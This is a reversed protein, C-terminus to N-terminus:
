KEERELVAVVRDIEDNTDDYKMQNHRMLKRELRRTINLMKLAERTRKDVYDWAEEATGIKYGGRRTSCIVLPVDPDNNIARVDYSLRKKATSQYGSKSYDDYEPIAEFITEPLVWERSYLFEILREQRANM